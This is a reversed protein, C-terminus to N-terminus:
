QGKIEQYVASLPIGEHRAITACEEFEPKSRITKGNLLAEKITIAGYKTQYQTTRRELMTKSVNISKIGLTTTERFIIEKIAEQNKPTCLVSVITAPRSKKMTTPIFNVDNAGASILREMAYGLSEATMDDVTCELLIADVAAPLPSSEGLQVRLMNPIEMDRHGIGYATKEITLTPTDTYRDVLTALIAAGTPTTTEHKVAGRRTPIHELIKITAPAPVPIRGHACNIFGGGLEISSCLVQEIQLAERCIAAGVIDVIADTAGVEHFHIEDIPCNHVHSEAIAIRKFIALSSEKVSQALTSKEIITTIDGLNRGHHHPHSTSPQHNIPQHSPSHSTSPQHNIPQHPHHHSPPQDSTQQDSTPSSPHTSQNQQPTQVVSPLASGRISPHTNPPQLSYECQNNKAHSHKSSHVHHDPINKHHHHHAHDHTHEHDINEDEHHHHHHETLIVDVRTGHIGNKSSPTIQLDFEDSINLKSLENRLHSEEVGLDLMAALNMDGSIGSFCDYYLVRM